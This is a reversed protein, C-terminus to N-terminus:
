LAPQMAPFVKSIDPGWYALSQGPQPGPDLYFIWGVTRAMDTVFSYDSGIQKIFHDLPNQFSPISAPIALPIVGLLAYKALVAEVILFEPLAPYPIGTFDIFDM